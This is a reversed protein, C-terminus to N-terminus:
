SSNPPYACPLPFSSVRPFEVAVIVAITLSTSGLPLRTMCPVRVTATLWSSCYMVIVRSGGEVYGTVIVHQRCPYSVGTDGYATGHLRRVLLTGAPVQAKIKRATRFFNLISLHYDFIISHYLRIFCKASFNAM